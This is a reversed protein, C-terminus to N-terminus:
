PSVGKRAAAEKEFGHTWEVFYSSGLLKTAMDHLRREKPTMRAVFASERENLAHPPIQAKEYDTQKPPM